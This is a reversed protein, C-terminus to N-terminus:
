QHMGEFIEWLFNWCDIFGREYESKTDTDSLKGNGLLRHKFEIPLGYLSKIEGPQPLLERSM